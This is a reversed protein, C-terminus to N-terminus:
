EGNMIYDEWNHSEPDDHLWFHSKNEPVLLKAILRIFNSHIVGNKNLLKLTKINENSEDLEM